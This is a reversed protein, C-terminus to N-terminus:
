EAQVKRTYKRKAVPQNTSETISLDSANLIDDGGQFIEVKDLQPGDSVILTSSSAINVEGM